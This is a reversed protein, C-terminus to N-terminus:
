ELWERSYIGNNLIDKLLKNFFDPNDMNANHAANPIITLPLKEEDSWRKCYAQVKGTIDKDGHTIFIPAELLKNNLYNSFESFVGRTIRVLEHISHKKLTDFMYKKGEETVSVQNAISKILFNYPYLYLLWPTIKLLFIDIKTYYQPFLPTSGVLIISNVREPYERVFIQSILGGMSQGVLHAKNVQEKDLINKLEKSANGLSFNTYPKSEGHLPADIAIVRFDSKFFDFQYKFLLHDATAGHLFVVCDSGDGATWYYTKGRKNEIYRENM